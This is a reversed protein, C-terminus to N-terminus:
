RKYQKFATLYEAVNGAKLKAEFEDMDKKTGCLYNLNHADKCQPCKLISIESQYERHWGCDCFWVYSEPKM